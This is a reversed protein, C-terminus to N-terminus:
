DGPRKRGVLLLCEPLGHMPAGEWDGVHEGFEATDILECGAKLIAQIFDSVTWHFEYSALGGDERSLIDDTYKFVFPGRDYYDYAVELKDTGDRWIRRFPHYENVMFIGGLKLIRVAERYYQELEAVWVAVHGGTYVLDFHDNELAELRCVDSPVFRINLNLEKARAAAIDLQQHSIDVSTVQAGLGALAFVALNDGSGLVAVRKGRIHQFYKLEETVFVLEPSDVCNRWTGRRDHMAKWNSAAAEWRKQNSQHYPNM